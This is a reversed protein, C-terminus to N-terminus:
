TPASSRIYAKVMSRCQDVWHVASRSAECGARVGVIFHRRRVQRRVPSLPADLDNRAAEAVSPQSIRCCAARRFRAAAMMGVPTLAQAGALGDTAIPVAGVPRQRAHPSISKSRPLEAVQERIKSGIPLERRTFVAPRM